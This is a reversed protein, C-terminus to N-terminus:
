LTEFSTNACPKVMYEYFAANVTPWAERDKMRTVWRVINPWNAYDLRIAEGLTIMAIGLYDALSIHQGCVYPSASLYEGDLVNLYKHAHERGWALAAAQARDGARRHTPLIQPYVLGYNLERSLGTNFWDMRENVRARLRMDSPYTSSGHHEALFKLIASSESLRFDGDELVPVARNPNVATFAAQQHEGTMLDVLQYDLQVKNDAAFLMVSRSTTSAPHFYLKM